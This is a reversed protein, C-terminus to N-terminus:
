ALKFFAKIKQLYGISVQEIAQEIEKKIIHKANSVQRKALISSLKKALSPSKELIQALASKPIEFVVSDTIARITASRSEGTLLSVEGFFMGAKITAVEYIGQEGDRVLVSLLGEELVFLSDGSDGQRVVDQKEKYHIEKANQVLIDIESQNLDKFIEVNSLLYCVEDDQSIHHVPRSVSIKEAPIQINSIQLNKLVNKKVEYVLSDKIAYDELWFRLVWVTGDRSFEDIKVDPSKYAQRVQLVENAAALLVREAQAPLIDYDLLVELQVRFDKTPRNYNRFTLASLRSNPINIVINERTVIKTSRWNMELVQGVSGQEVEIWEGIAFPMEASLTIGAFFDAVLNRVALGIIALMVSSTAFFGTYSALNQSTSAFWIGLVVLWISFSVMNRLLAPLQRVRKYGHQGVLYFTDILRVLLLTTGAIWLLWVFRKIPEGFYALLFYELIFGFSILAVPLPLIKFFLKLM